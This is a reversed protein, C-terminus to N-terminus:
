LYTICSEIVHICKKKKKGANTEFHKYQTVMQYEDQHSRLLKHGWPASQPRSGTSLKSEM